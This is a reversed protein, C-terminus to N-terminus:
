RQMLETLLEQRHEGGASEVQAFLMEVQQHRGLLTDIVDQQATTM